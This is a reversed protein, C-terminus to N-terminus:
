GAIIAPVGAGRRDVAAGVVGESLYAANAVGVRRVRRVGRLWRLRAPRVGEEVLLEGTEPNWAFRPANISEDFRMGYDVINTIFLAHQQPRLHGGSAGLAVWAGGDSMIVGSLTHLPLKRPGVSNPLGPRPDFCAGRDNLTVQYRPETVGSGFPHYLSQIGSVVYGDSAAIAFYTTDGSGGVAEGALARVEGLVEDSLLDDASMRMFRPDGVNLDRWMYAPRAAELLARVRAESYPNQPAVSEELLALIHLTTVGQTNPPMEYITWGRYSGRLPKGVLADYSRLDGASLLGGRSAVYDALAEAVEGEYFSRPDDAVFELVEALGPLRFIRGEIPPDRLYTERSGPDQALVDSYARVADALTRSAPFGRRAMEAAPRVLDGWELSGLERWMRYLGAVLGPVTIAEVGEPRRGVAELASPSYGSGNIFLLRGDPRRVLAFFDGGLGGLHPLTVALVLSATVAADVANGGRRMMDAAATSANPEETAVAAKSSWAILHNM